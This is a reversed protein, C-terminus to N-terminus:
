WINIKPEVSKTLRGLNQLFTESNNILIQVLGQCEKIVKISNQTERCYNIMKWLEEMWKTEMSLTRTQQLSLEVSVSLLWSIELNQGKNGECRM